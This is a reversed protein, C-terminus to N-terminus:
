QGGLSGYYHALAEFEAESLGEMKPKMKEPMERNGAAYDMLTHKLYPMWQGALIGAEDEKVSGGETHCKECKIEHIQQGATVLAPDTEQPQSVFPQADYYKAIAEIEAESMDAFMECKNAPPKDSDPYEAERCPRAQEQFALMADFLVFEAVGGIIPVEPHTSAGAQGHCDACPKILVDTDAAAAWGPVTVALLLTLLLKKNM